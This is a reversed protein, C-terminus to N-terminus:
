NWLPASGPRQIKIGVSQLAQFAVLADQDNPERAPMLHAFRGEPVADMDPLLSPGFGTFAGLSDREIFLFRTINANRSQGIVMVVEKRDPAESPNITGATEDHARADLGSLWSEAVVALSTAKCAAAAVRAISGFRNKQEESDQEDTAHVMLGEAGLIMLSLPVGDKCLMSAEAYHEAQKLLDHLTELQAPPQKKMQM